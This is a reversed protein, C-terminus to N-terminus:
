IKISYEKKALLTEQFDEVSMPKAFYYGQAYDCGIGKLWLAQAYTEVGEAVVKMNLHKAMTIVDSVVIASKSGQDKLDFFAKDLKLVDADIASLRNLSSVGAGFDDISITFGITKLRKVSDLFKDADKEIASETLELEIREPSIEYTNVISFIRTAINEALVTHASLNVSIRPISVKKHNSSIYKCVEELVFLDLSAIFGNDEFIPIFDDPYITEGLTPHWRVLAEAGGVELTDFSIKPQYEVVFERDKLAQEMRFTINVKHEYMKRMKADFTIFTTKHADKGHKRATDAQGIIASIKEKTNEVILNGFSLIVNYKENMNDHLVPVIDTTYIKRMTGGDDVRRFIMFQDATRRCLVASTDKFTTKLTKSIALLIETGRTPSFHTNITKFMDIDFTILEYENPKAVKLIEEMTSAFKSLSMLGTLMDTNHSILLAEKKKIQGHYYLALFGAITILIGIAFLYWFDMFLDLISDEPYFDNAHNNLITRYENDGIRDLMVNFIPLYEQSIDKSIFLQMPVTLDTHISISDTNDLYLQAYAAGSETSILASVDGADFADLLDHWDTYAILESNPFDQVFLESGIAKYPLLGIKNLNGILERTSHSDKYVDADVQAIMPLDYYSETADYRENDVDSHGYITLLMDFDQHLERDESLSYPHYNIEFGHQEALMDLTEVMAGDPLGQENQFSIPEYDAVYGVELPRQRLTEVEGQTLSRHNIEISDSMYKNELELFYNGETAVVDYFVTDIKDMLEQNEFSTVMFLSFVGLNLVNNGVNSYDDELYTIFFDADLQMYTGEVGYVYEVSIDNANCYRELYEKGINGDYTAVTKGDIAKPDAYLLDMDDTMLAVYTKSYQTDSYLVNQAREDTKTVFGGVDVSGNNVADFMSGTVPVYEFKLDSVEAIKEFVDYGYGKDSYSDLDVIFDDFADYYGVRIVRDYDFPEPDEIESEDQTSIIGEEGNVVMTVYPSSTVLACILLAALLFKKM